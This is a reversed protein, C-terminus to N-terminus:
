LGEVDRALEVAKTLAQMRGLVLRGVQSGLELSLALTLLIRDCRPCTEGFFM